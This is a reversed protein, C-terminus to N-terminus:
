STAIPSEKILTDGWKGRYEYAGIHGFEATLSAFTKFGSARALKCFSYDEGRFLPTEREKCYDMTNNFLAYQNRTLDNCYRLGENNIQMIGITRRQIRMFGSAGEEVELFGPIEIVDGKGDRQNKSVNVPYSLAKSPAHPDRREFYPVLKQIELRKLPYVGVSIPAPCCLVTLFDQPTFVLDTDLFFLSEPVMPSTMFQYLIEQRALCIGGSTECHIEFSIGLSKLAEVTSYLSELFKMYCKSDHSPIGIFVSKPLFPKLPYFQKECQDIFSGDM